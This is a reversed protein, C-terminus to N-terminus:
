RATRVWDAIAQWDPDNRSAFQHGGGHFPDGGADPALPHILLRSTAPSGPTVLRSVIEFNRQSQEETWTTKGPSLPELRFATSSEAHCVVCRGHGPRKKLFIPEVRTKYAEFNLSQAAAFPVAFVLGVFLSVTTAVRALTM